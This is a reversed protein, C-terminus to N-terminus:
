SSSVPGRLDDEDEDLVPVVGVEPVVGPLSPWPPLADPERGPLRKDTSRAGRRTRRPAQLRAGGHLACGVAYAARSSYNSNGGGGPRCRCSSAGAAGVDGPVLLLEVLPAQDGAGHTRSPLRRPGRTGTRDAAGAPRQQVESRRRAAAVTRAARTARQPQQQRRRRGRFTVARGQSQEQRHERRRADPPRRRPSRPRSPSTGSGAGDANMEESYGEGPASARRPHVGVGLLAQRVPELALLPARLGEREVLPEGRSAGPENSAHYPTAWSDRASPCRASAAPPEPPSNALQLRLEEVGREEQRAGAELGPAPGLRLDEGAARDREVRPLSSARASWPSAWASRAARGPPGEPPQGSWTKTAGSSARGTLATPRSGSRAEGPGAPRRMGPRARPAM